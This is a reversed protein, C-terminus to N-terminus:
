WLRLLAALVLWLPAGVLLVSVWLAQLARRRRPPLAPRLALARIAGAAFGLVLLPGLLAALHALPLHLVVIADGTDRTPRRPV